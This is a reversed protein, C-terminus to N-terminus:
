LDQVMGHWMQKTDNNIQQRCKDINTVKYNTAFPTSNCSSSDINLLSNCHYDHVFNWLFTMTLYIYIKQMTQM